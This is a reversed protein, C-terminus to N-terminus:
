PVAQVDALFRVPFMLASTATTTPLSKLSWPQPKPPYWPSHSILGGDHDSPAQNFDHFSAMCQGGSSSLSSHPPTTGPLPCTGPHANNRLFPWLGRPFLNTSKCNPTSVAAYLAPSQLTEPVVAHYANASDYAALAAKFQSGGTSETGIPPSTYYSSGRFVRPPMILGHPPGRPGNSPGLVFM